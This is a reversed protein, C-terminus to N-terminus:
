CNQCILEPARAPSASLPEIQDPVDDDILPRRFRARLESDIGSVELVGQETPITAFISRASKTITAPHDVGSLTVTGVYSIAGRQLREAYGYFLVKGVNEIDINVPENEALAQMDIQIAVRPNLKKYPKTADSELAVRVAGAIGLEGKRENGTMQVNRLGSVDEQNPLDTSVRNGILVMVVCLSAM